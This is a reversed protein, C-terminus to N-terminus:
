RSYYEIILSVDVELNVDALTPLTEIKGVPGKRTLWSPVEGSYSEKLNNQIDALELTKPILTVMQGAKVQCSPINVKKGDVLVHGHSVLQRAQSRTRAFGLRYVVNDLRTELTQMIYEETNGERSLAQEYYRRFQKELVGYIFRLKQKEELRKGFESQKRRRGRTQHNSRSATPDEPLLHFRRLYKKQPGTYRAM